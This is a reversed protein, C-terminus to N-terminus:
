LNRVGVQRKGITVRRARLVDISNTKKEFATKKSRPKGRLRLTVELLKARGSSVIDLVAFVANSTETM